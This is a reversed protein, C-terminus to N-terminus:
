QYGSYQNRYRHQVNHMIPPLASVLGLVAHFDPKRAGTKKGSPEPAGVVATPTATPKLQSVPM